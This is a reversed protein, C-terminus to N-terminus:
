YECKDMVLYTVSSKELFTIILWVYQLEVLLARHLVEESFTRFCRSSNILNALDSLFTSGSALDEKLIKTWPDLWHLTDHEDTTSGQGLPWFRLPLDKEPTEELVVPEVNLVLDVQVVLNLLSDLSHNNAFLFHLNSCSGFARYSKYSKLLFLVFFFQKASSHFGVRVFLGASPVFQSCVPVFLEPIIKRQRKEKRVM